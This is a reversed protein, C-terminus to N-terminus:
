KTETLALTTATPTTESTASMSSPKSGINRVAAEVHASLWAELGSGDLGAVKKLEALAGTKDWLTRLNAMVKDKALTAEDMSLKGDVGRAEDVVQAQKSVFAYIDASARDLAGQVRTNKTHARVWLTAQGILAILVAAVLATLPPILQALLDSM